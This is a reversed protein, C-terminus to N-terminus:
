GGGKTLCCRFKSRDFDIDPTPKKDIVRTTPNILAPGPNTMAATRWGLPFDHCPRGLRGERAAQRESEIGARSSICHAVYGRKAKVSSM